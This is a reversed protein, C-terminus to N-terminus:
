DLRIPRTTRDILAKVSSCDAGAQRGLGANTGNRTTPQWGNM